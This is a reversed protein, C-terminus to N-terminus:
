GLIDSGVAREVIKRLRNSAFNDDGSKPSPVPIIAPLAKRSFREILDEPFTKYFDEEVFVVAYIATHNEDDKAALFLQETQDRAADNNSVAYTEAGLAQYLKVSSVNGVVAFKYTDSM